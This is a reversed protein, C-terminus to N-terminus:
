SWLLPQRYILSVKNKIWAKLTEFHEVREIRVRDDIVSKAQELLDGNPYGYFGWCSDISEGSEDKIYFGWVNGSLYDNWEDVISQAVRQSVDRTYMGKCRRVLVFGRFSTDWPCDFSYRNKGLSLSVGSHIHAYLPFVFYGDYFWRKTQQVFDFISQPDFGKREVNFQRHDYVLFCDNDGWSDPSEAYEDQVIEITHNKYDITKM